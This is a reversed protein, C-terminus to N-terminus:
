IEWRNRSITVFLAGPARGLLERLNPALLVHSSAIAPSSARGGALGHCLPHGPLLQLFANSSGPFGM